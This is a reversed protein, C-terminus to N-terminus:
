EGITRAPRRRRTERAREALASSEPYVVSLLTLGRAPAVSVRPDRVGGALLDTPWSTLRLGAGVDMLAGVLSRVMTHCFADAEVTAVIVNRADRQWDLRRLTRVTTAGARRRCYAAFDHEGLLGPVATRIADLDLPRPWHLTDYRRLPEVGWDADAVQYVYLRSLASFRADFGEPALGLSRVRVDGPLVGALRRPLAVAYREWLRAPLDGHAVQGTAHVGTDTRGAVTLPMPARLITGLAEEVVGQVTRQGPQRAWGAFDTGQYSLNLRLRVFGGDPSM